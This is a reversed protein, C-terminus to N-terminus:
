QYQIAANGDTADWIRGRGPEKRAYDKVLETIREGRNFLKATYPSM